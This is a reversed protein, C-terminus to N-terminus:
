LLLDAKSQPNGQRCALATFQDRVPHPAIAAFLAPSLGRRSHTVM